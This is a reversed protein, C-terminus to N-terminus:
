SFENTKERKTKLKNNNKHDCFSISKVIFYVSLFIQKAFNIILLNIVGNLDILFLYRTLM